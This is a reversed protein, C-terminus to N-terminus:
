PEFYCDDPINGTVNALTQSGCMVGDLSVKGTVYIGGGHDTATNGTIVASDVMTLLLPKSVESWAPPGDCLVGAGLKGAFNGTIASKGTMLIAADVGALYVGGGM